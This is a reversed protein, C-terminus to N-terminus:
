YRADRLLRTPLYPLARLLTCPPLYWAPHWHPPLKPETTTSQVTETGSMAYPRRLAIIYSVTGPVAVPYYCTPMRKTVVPSLTDPVYPSLGVENTKKMFAVFGVSRMAPYATGADRLLRRASLVALLLTAHWWLSDWYWADCLLM